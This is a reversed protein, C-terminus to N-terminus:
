LCIREKSYMDKESAEAGPKCPEVQIANLFAYKCIWMHLTSANAIKTHIHMKSHKCIDM